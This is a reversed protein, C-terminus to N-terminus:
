TDCVDPTGEALAIEECKRCYKYPVGRDSSFFSVRPLGWHSTPFSRDFLIPNPHNGHRDMIKKCLAEGNRTLHHFWIGTNSEQVRLDDALDLGNATKM